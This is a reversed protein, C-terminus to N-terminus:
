RNPEDYLNRSNNGLLIKDLIYRGIVDGTIRKCWEIRQQTQERISALHDLVYSFEKALAGSKLEFSKGLLHNKLMQAAGCQDSCLAYVGRMVAENVVAGWGDLKSPLCLVDYQPLVDYIVELKQYGKISVVDSLGLADIQKEIKGREEGDGYIDLHYSSKPLSSLEDIMYSVNKLDSLTGVYCVNMFTEKRQVSITAPAKTAYMFPYVNWKKSISKYYKESADGIAFVNDIYKVYKYKRLYFNLYHQWLPHFLTKPGEYCISRKVNYKLGFKFYHGEIHNVALGHYIHIANETDTEYIAKLRVDDPDIIYNVGDDKPLDEDSWGMSKRYDIVTCPAIYYVAKVREDKVIGYVWPLMHACVYPEWLFVSYKKMTM